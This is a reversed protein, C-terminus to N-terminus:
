ENAESREDKSIEDCLRKDKTNITTREPRIVATTKCSEGETRKRRRRGRKTESSVSM